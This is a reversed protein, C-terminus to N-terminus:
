TIDYAPVFAFKSHSPAFSNWTPGWYRLFIHGMNHMDDLIKKTWHRLLQWVGRCFFFTLKIYPLFVIVNVSCWCTNPLKIQYKIPNWLHYGASCLVNDFCKTSSSKIGDQPGWKSFWHGLLSLSSKKSGKKCGMRSMQALIMLIGVSTWDSNLKEVKDMWKGANSWCSTTVRKVTAYICQFVRRVPM